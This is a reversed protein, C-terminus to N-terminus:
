GVHKICEPGYGNHVSTPVTLTAGCRRCSNSELAFDMGYKAFDGTFLANAARQWRDYGNRFRGWMAIEGNRIDAFMQYDTVNHPGILAGIVIKATGEGPPTWSKVRLTIHGEGDVVTYFGIPVEQLKPTTSYQVELTPEEDPLDILAQALLPCRRMGHMVAIVQKDSLRGYKRWQQAVSKYFEPCKPMVDQISVYLGAAPMMVNFDHEDAEFRALGRAILSRQGDVLECYFNTSAAVQVM